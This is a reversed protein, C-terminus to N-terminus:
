DLPTFKYGMGYISSILKQPLKKRLKFVLNRISNANLDVGNTYFDEMIDENTCIQERKKLFLQMLLLEHRTLDVIQESHKLLLKETDWQYEEGLDVIPSLLLESETKTINRSVHFLTDLLEEHNIPKTIFQAVGLNILRLLYASDTHASLIIIEQESNLERLHESLEVGNMKPMQIDSIVLDFGDVKETQYAKYLALAEVGDAAVVVTDFFDELLEAMNSRLPEYDEVLLLSLNRTQLFLTGHEVVIVGNHEPSLPHHLPLDAAHLLGVGNSRSGQCSGLVLATKFV